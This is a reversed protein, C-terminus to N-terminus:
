KTTERFKLTYYWTDDTLTITYSRAGKKETWVKEEVKNYFSDLEKTKSAILSRDFSLRVEQCVGKDTFFVLMTQLGDNSVYRQYKYTSNVFGTEQTYDAMKTSVHKIVAQEKMGVLNQSCLPQSLLLLVSFTLLANLDLYKLV